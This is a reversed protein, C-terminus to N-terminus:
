RWVQIPSLTYTVKMSPVDIDTQYTHSHATYEYADYSLGKHAKDPEVTTLVIQLCSLPAFAIEREFLDLV